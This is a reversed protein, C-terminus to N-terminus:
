GHRIAWGASAWLILGAGLQGITDAPGLPSIFPYTLALLLLASGTVYHPRNSFIFALPLFHLGIVFIIMPVIWADLGRHALMLVGTFIVLWQATNVVHFVRKVRRSNPTDPRSGLEAAYRRYVSYAAFTLVIALLAIVGETTVSHTSEIAWIELWVSGFVAFFIAGIARLARTSGITMETM